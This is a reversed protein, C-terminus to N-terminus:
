VNTGVGPVKTQAQVVGGYRVGGDVRIGSTVFISVM